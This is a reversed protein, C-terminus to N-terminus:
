LCFAEKNIIVVKKFYLNTEHKSLFSPRLLDIETYLSM